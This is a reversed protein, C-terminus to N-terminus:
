WLRKEYCVNIDKMHFDEASIIHDILVCLDEVWFFDMVKDKHIEIPKGLAANQINKKILRTDAEHSGFCGFLRLNVINGNHELIDKTIINKALGYVDKPWRNLVEREDLASIEKGRDFEAGSGFNIMLRYKDSHAKLNHYMQLNDYLSETTDRDTRKGGQIATHLVVDVENEIFFQSVKRPSTVNLDERGTAYVTYKKSFYEKFHKGLFGHAGTILINM